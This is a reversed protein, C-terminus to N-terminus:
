SEMEEAEERAKGKIRGSTEWLHLIDDFTAVEEKVSEILAVANEAFTVQIRHSEISRNLRKVKDELEAITRRQDEERSQSKEQFV